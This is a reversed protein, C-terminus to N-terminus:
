VVEEEESILKIANELSSNVFVWVAKPIRLGQVYLLDRVVIPRPHGFHLLEGQVGVKGCVWRREQEQLGIGLSWLPWPLQRGRWRADGNGLSYWTSAIVAQWSPM